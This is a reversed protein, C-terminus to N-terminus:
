PNKLLEQAAFRLQCIEDASIIAPSGELRPAIQCVFELLQDRTWNMKEQLLRLYEIDQQVRRLAKLRLSPLPGEVNLPLGCYFLSQPQARTLHEPRGVVDRITWGDAGKLFGTLGIM